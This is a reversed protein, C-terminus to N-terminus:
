HFAAPIFALDISVVPAAPNGGTDWKFTYANNPNIGAVYGCTDYDTSVSPNLWAGTIGGTTFGPGVLNGSIPSVSMCSLELLTFTSAFNAHFFILGASYPTIDFPLAVTGSTSVGGISVSGTLLTKSSM